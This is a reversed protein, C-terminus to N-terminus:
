QDTSQEHKNVQERYSFLGFRALLDGNMICGSQDVAVRTDQHINAVALFILRPMDGIRQINRQCLEIGSRSLQFFIPLFRYNQDVLQTLM